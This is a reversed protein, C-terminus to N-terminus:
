TETRFQVVFSLRIILACLIIFVSQIHIHQVIQHFLLANIKMEVLHVSFSCIKMWKKPMLLLVVYLLSQEINGGGTTLVYYDVIEEAMSLTLFRDLLLNINYFVIDTSPM